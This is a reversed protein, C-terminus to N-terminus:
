PYSNVHEPTANSHVQVTSCHRHVSGVSCGMKEAIARISMGSARLSRIAVGDIDGPLNPYHKGDCGVVGGPRTHGERPPAILTALADLRRARNYLWEAWVNRDYSRELGTPKIDTAHELVSLATELQEAADLLESM